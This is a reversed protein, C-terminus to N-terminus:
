PNTPHPAKLVHLRYSRTTGLFIDLILTVMNPSERLRDPEATENNHLIELMGRRM